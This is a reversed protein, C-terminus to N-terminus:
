ASPWRFGDLEAPPELPSAPLTEGVEPDNYPGPAVDNPADPYFLAALTQLQGRGVGLEFQGGGYLRIDREECYEITELLSELSGFRSPKVNLWGPEWPLDEVDERGHIPADWSVRERVDPDDFLPRTEETLAPDEVVAEPFGELVLAYLEPDAPVDVDTGEYQGKLDLIRVNEAGVADDMAEVLERDWEPTPDLKFELDPVRERLRELRDTTPPDGLRTSAVFTVPELSRDLRSALDTEAQRCALDLAASELAWRRYNRFEERDPARAPFLDLDAVTESFSELTYEGALEPLGTEALRDHEDAEYTVDEGLGSVHQGDGNQGALMVTTTVRVFDSSTERELQETSVSDVTLPLDALREYSM